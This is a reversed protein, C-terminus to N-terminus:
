GNPGRVIPTQSGQLEGYSEKARLSCCWIFTSKQWNLPVQLYGAVLQFEDSTNQHTYFYVCVFGLRTWSGCLQALPSTVSAISRHEAVIFQDTVGPRTTSKSAMRQDSTLAFILRRGLASHSTAHRYRIPNRILRTYDGHLRVLRTHGPISGRISKRRTTSVNDSATDGPGEWSESAEIDEDRKNCHVFTVLSGVKM